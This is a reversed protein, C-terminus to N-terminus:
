AGALALAGLVGSRIGLAPRVLQPAPVYGNLLPGLRTQIMELLQSQQMVGGGLICCEPSLTCVLSALGLALYQAELQWAPHDAPLSEGPRGARAAIAPGSALGELCDAHFPCVGPFGVDETLRPIRIHGMEPHSAGKLLRGSALAAGGIGTGITLYLCNEIGRAAGWRAEGTLASNVDTQFVVPVELAGRLPGVLDCDRWGPKPTSTICGSTLDVPGFAAIGLAELDAGAERRFFDICRDITEQPLTTPIELTLLDAPGSGIGCVFKTGGAELAAFLPM